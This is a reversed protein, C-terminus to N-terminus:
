RNFRVYMQKPCWTYIIIDRFTMKQTQLNSNQCYYRILQYVLCLRLRNFINASEDLTIFWFCFM